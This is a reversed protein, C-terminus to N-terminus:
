LMVSLQFNKSVDNNEAVNCVFIDEEIMYARNNYQM